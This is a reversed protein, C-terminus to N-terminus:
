IIISFMWLYTLSRKTFTYSTSRKALEEWLCWVNRSCTDKQVKYYYIYIYIKMEVHKLFGASDAQSGRRCELHKDWCASVDSPIKIIKRQTKCNVCMVVSAGITDSVLSDEKHQNIALHNIHKSQQDSNCMSSTYLNTGKLKWILMM